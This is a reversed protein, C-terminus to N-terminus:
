EYMNEVFNLVTEKIGMKDAYQSLKVLDKDKRKLYEKVSYKVHDIDLNKKHKIIDCISREIDYTKITNGMPTQIETLGLNYIEDSAYYKNHNKNIEDIHYNRPITVTYLYPIEQTLEHFYLAHMHSFITKKYKLQFTYFEDEIVESLIYIGSAIREIEKNKEMISLYNRSIKLPELMYAKIYGKNARMIKKIMEICVKSQQNPYQARYQLFDNSITQIVLELNKNNRNNDKSSDKLKNIATIYRKIQQFNLNLQKSESNM